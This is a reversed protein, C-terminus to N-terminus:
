FYNVNKTEFFSFIMCFMIRSKYFHFVKLCQYISRKYFSLRTTCRTVVLPVVFSLSHWSHCRIVVLPVVFLLQHCRNVVFPVVLSFSHCRTVVLSYKLQNKKKEFLLPAQWQVGQPSSKSSSRQLLDVSNFASVLGQSSNNVTLLLFQLLLQECITMLILTRLFKAINVLFCRHQLRKKLFNCTKFGVLRNFSSELVPTKGTYIAFNKLVAKEISCMQHSSRSNLCRKLKHYM